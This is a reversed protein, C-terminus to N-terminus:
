TGRIQVKGDGLYKYSKIIKINTEGIKETIGYIRAFIINSQIFFDVHEPSQKLMNELYENGSIDLMQLEMAYPNSINQNIKTRIIGLEFAMILYKLSFYGSSGAM